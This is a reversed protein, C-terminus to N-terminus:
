RRRQTRLMRFRRHSHLARAGAGCRADARDRWAAPLCRPHSDVSEHRRGELQAVACSPGISAHMQYKRRFTAEFARASDAATTGRELITSTQAPQQLLHTFVDRPEPLSASEDWKAAAALATMASIAQYEREAVVALFSGDRVVKVVGPMREVKSVDLERLRAGYNPPRVVRAHVMGPLRMDHVYAAGGNVKAPIDVRPISKGIYRYSSPSTLNSRASAAVHLRQAVLEGYGIRKGDDSLVFGNDARLRSEPISWKQAAASLLIARVQAAANLIATGSDMITHSGATYGENATRETDATILEISEPAVMLEEAAIQAAGDEHGAGARGQWHVGHGQRARRHPDVCRADTCSRSQGAVRQRGGARMRLAPLLSFSVVLVTGGALVARRSIKDASVSMGASETADRKRNKQLEDSARRVARLIRLHVGCRCLNTEMHERIQADTPAANRLLLAHARVIMGATCYGCQAAQEDVFARQLAGIEAGSGLGELTTIQKGELAAIPMVCSPVAENDVLVMCSGCQALGCGFKAANLQLTGRLVYLLPTQPDDDVTRASGNVHLTTMVPQRPEEM